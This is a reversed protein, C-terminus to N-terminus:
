GHDIAFRRWRSRPASWAVKVGTVAAHRPGTWLEDALTQLGPRSGEAMVLVTGDQQNSVRGALELSRALELVWWRFGVGQVRGSAVARLYAQDSPRSM